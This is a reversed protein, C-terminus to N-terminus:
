VEARKVQREWNEVGLVGYGVDASSHSRVMRM